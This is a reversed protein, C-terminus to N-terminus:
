SWFERVSKRRAESDEDPPPMVAIDAIVANELTLRFARRTETRKLNEFRLLPADEGYVEARTWRM